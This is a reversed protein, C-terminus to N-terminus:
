INLTYVQVLPNESFLTEERETDRISVSEGMLETHM